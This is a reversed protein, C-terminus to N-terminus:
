VNQEDGWGEEGRTVILRNEMDTLEKQKTQEKTINKLNWMSIFNYMQREKDSMKCKAIGELDM